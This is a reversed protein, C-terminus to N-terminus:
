AALKESLCNAHQKSGFGSKKAVAKCARGASGVDKQQQTKQGMDLRSKCDSGYGTPRGVFTVVKGSKKKFKIVRPACSGGAARAKAIQRTTSSGGRRGKGVRGGGRISSNKSKSM